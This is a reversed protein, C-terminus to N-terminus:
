GKRSRPAAAKTATEALRTTRRTWSTRTPTPHPHASPEFKNTYKRTARHLDAATSYELPYVGSSSSARQMHNTSQKGPHVRVRMYASCKSVCVSVYLPGAHLIVAVVAERAGAISAPPPLVVVALRSGYARRGPLATMLLHWMYPSQSDSRSCGPLLFNGGALAVDTRRVCPKLLPHAAANSHSVLCDEM